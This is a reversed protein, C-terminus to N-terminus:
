QKLRLGKIWRRWWREPKRQIFRELNPPTMTETRNLVDPGEDSEDMAKRLLKEFEKEAESRKRRAKGM